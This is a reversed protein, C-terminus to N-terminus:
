VGLLTVEFILTANAPIGSGAPPNNGYGLTPPIVIRRTGGVRMGTVGQDFGAIVGGTGLRFAFSGSDFRTGKNDAATTSYVWGTYSVTATNGAAAAAGAGVSLDTTSFPVNASPASPSSSSSSGSCAATLVLVCVPLFRIVRIM